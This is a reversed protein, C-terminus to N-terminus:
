DQNDKIYGAVILFQRMGAVVELDNSALRGNVYIDGNPCLKIVENIDNRFTIYSESENSNIPLKYGNDTITPIM